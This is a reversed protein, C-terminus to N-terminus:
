VVDVVVQGLTGGSEVLQHAEVIREFPVIQHVLPVFAGTETASRISNIAAERDMNSLEYAFMFRMTISNQLLWRANLTATNGTLGYVVCTGHPRICQEILPANVALDMEIAADVGGGSLGRVREGIPETQYNITAFAGAERAVHAKEESSVTAIVCAGMRSAFFVTARGVNGAGGSVLITRGEAAQALRAAHAATTAPIGLCAGQAYSFHAPLPVAQAAPLAIYQAATGQPRKWQGNWLWVREGVRAADVGDGVAVVDGAGDSHPVIRDFRMARGGLGGRAKVDSPNVGSARVRVLVEGAAPEPIPIEVIRLVKAAPGQEIYAAARM